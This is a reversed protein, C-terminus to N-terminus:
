KKEEIKPTDFNKEEIIVFETRRNMARGEPNDKGEPTLNPASPQSIGYSKIDFRAKDIKKENIFYNAAAQARKDSLKQNYEKTGISDTHAAIRVVTNPYLSMLDFVKKLTDRGEPLIRAKDFEYYITGLRRGILPNPKTKLVLDFELTDSNIRNDTNFSLVSSLFGDKKTTLKYGREPDLDFFYQGNITSYSELEFGNREDFLVVNGSETLVRNGNNEEYVKGNVALYLKTTRVEYIDDCCTESKLGFGGPRNSVVFGKTSLENLSFYIDDVSSNIPTGLNEPENWEGGNDWTSKFVDQGGITIWGNSSFYLTNTKADFFPSMEDLKSNINSGLSRPKSLKGGEVIKAYYIDLGRAINRDSVFYVVDEGEKNKGVNPQTSTFLPDNVGGADVGKSWIGNELKSMFIDCRMRLKNDQQCETYYMTNGDATFAPNGLHVGEKNINNNIEEGKTWESGNRVSKYIKATKAFKEVGKKVPIVEDSKLSAFYMADDGKLVPGFDTFPQNINANLLKVEFERKDVSDRFYIGKRAGEIERKARKKFEVSIDDDKAVKLYKKFTEISAEYEGLYKQTMAYNFLNLPKKNKVSDRDVLNKYWQNASKYDRLALETPALVTPFYKKKPKKAAGAELYQAANYLSGKKLLKKAMKKNKGASLQEPTLAPKSGTNESQALMAGTEAVLIFLLFLIKKM